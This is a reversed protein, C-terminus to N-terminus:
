LRLASLLIAAALLAARPGSRGAGGTVSSIWTVYSTVRTHVTPYSALCSTFGYSVVGVLTSQGDEGPVTLPGGSDGNCSGVGGQGSMCINSDYVKGFFRDCEANSLVTARLYRLQPSVQSSDSTKGWGSVTATVYAFSDSLQSWTPLRIPRIYASNGKMKMALRVLAIDNVLLKKNWGPHIRVEIGAVEVQSPEKVSLSQAGLIVEPTGTMGDFCHAATLVWQEDILSGGCLMISDSVPVLLAAQHPFSHAPAVSGGVIRSEQSANRQIDLWTSNVSPLEAPFVNNLDRTISGVVGAVATAAALLLLPCGLM